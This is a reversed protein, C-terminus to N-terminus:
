RHLCTHSVDLRRGRRRNRVIQAAKEQPDLKSLEYKRHRGRIHHWVRQSVFNESEQTDPYTEFFAKVVIMTAAQNWDSKPEQDYCIRFNEKSPGYQTPNAVFNAIEPPTLPPLFGNDEVTSNKKAKVERHEM